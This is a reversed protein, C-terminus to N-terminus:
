GEPKQSIVLYSWDWLMNGPANCETSTLSQNREPVPLNEALQLMKEALQLM